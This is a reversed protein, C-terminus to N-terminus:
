YRKEDTEVYLRYTGMHTVNKVHIENKIINAFEHVTANRVNIENDVTFVFKLAGVYNVIGSENGM